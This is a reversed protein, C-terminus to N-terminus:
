VIESGGKLLGIALYIFFCLRSFEGGLEIAMGLFRLLLDEFGYGGKFFLVFKGVLDDLASFLDSGDDFFLKVCANTGGGEVFM